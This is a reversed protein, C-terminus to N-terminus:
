HIAELGSLFQAALAQAETPDLPAREKLEELLTRGDVYEMSVLERGEVEVLDFVRCVNPSTVQRAVRVEERLLELRRPDALLEPRLAKLAVEVRLKLDFARWVEGMGGRGLPSLIRFRQGSVQGPTFPRLGEPLDLTAGKGETRTTPDRDTM